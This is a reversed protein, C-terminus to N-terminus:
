TEGRSVSVGCLVGTFTEHGELAALTAALHGDLSLLGRDFTFHVKQDHSGYCTVHSDPSLGTELCRPQPITKVRPKAAWTVVIGSHFFLRAAARKTQLGSARM